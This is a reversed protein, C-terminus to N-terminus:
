DIYGGSDIELKDIYLTTAGRSGGNINGIQIDDYPNELPGYSIQTGANGGVSWDLTDTTNSYKM